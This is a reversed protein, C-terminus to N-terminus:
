ACQKKMLQTRESCNLSDLSEQDRQSGYFHICKSPIRSGTQDFRVYMPATKKNFPLSVKRGGPIAHHCMQLCCLPNGRAATIIDCPKRLSGWLLSTSAPHIVFLEQLVPLRLCPAPSLLMALLLLMRKPMAGGVMNRPSSAKLGGGPGSLPSQEVHTYSTCPHM